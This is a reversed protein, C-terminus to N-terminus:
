KLNQKIFNVTHRSATFAIKIENIKTAVRTSMEFTTSKSEELDPSRLNSYDGVEFPPFSCHDGLM